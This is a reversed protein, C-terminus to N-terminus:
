EQIDRRSQDQQQLALRERGRRKIEEPNWEYVRGAEIDKAGEDIAARMWDPLVKPPPTAELLGYHKQSQDDRIYVPEGPNQALAHRIEDTLHIEMGCNYEPPFGGQFLNV